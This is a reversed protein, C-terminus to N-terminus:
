AAHAIKRRPRRKWSTVPVAGDTAREIAVALEIGPGRDGRVIRSIQSQTAGVRAAFADQSIGRDRLWRGLAKM